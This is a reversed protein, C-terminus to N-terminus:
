NLHGLPKSESGLPKRINISQGKEKGDAYVGQHSNTVPSLPITQLRPFADKLAVELDDNMKKLKNGIVIMANESGESWKLKEREEMLKKSLGVELGLYYERSASHTLGNAIRYDQWLETFKRCLFVFVYEAIIVNEEDGFFVVQRVKRRKQTRDDFKIKQTYVVRCFFFKSVINEVFSQVWLRGPGEWVDRKTWNARNIETQEVEVRSLNHKLMIEQARMMAVEAEYQNSSTALALLKQIKDIARDRECM